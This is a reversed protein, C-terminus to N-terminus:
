KKYKPSMGWKNTGPVSDSCLLVLMWIGGILSILPILSLLTFLVYWWGSRGIDHFRRVASGIGPIFGALLMIIYCVWTLTTYMAFPNDDLQSYSVSWDMSYFYLITLPLMLLGWGLGGLWYERRTSRSGWSTWGKVYLEKTLTFMGATNPDYNENM